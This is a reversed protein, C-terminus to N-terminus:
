RAIHDYDAATDEQPIMTRAGELAQHLRALSRGVDRMDEQRVQVEIVAAIQRPENMMWPIRDAPERRAELDVARGARLLHHIAQEPWVAGIVAVERRASGMRHAQTNKLAPATSRLSGPRIRLNILDAVAGDHNAVAPSQLGDFDNVM